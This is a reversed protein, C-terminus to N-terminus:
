FYGSKKRKNGASCVSIEICAVRPPDSSRGHLSDQGCTYHPPLGPITVVQVFFKSKRWKKISNEYQRGFRYLYLFCM